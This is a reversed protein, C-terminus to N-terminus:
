KSLPIVFGQCVVVPGILNGFEMELFEFSTCVYFFTPKDHIVETCEKDRWNSVALFLNVVIDISKNQITSPNKLVSDNNHHPQVCTGM